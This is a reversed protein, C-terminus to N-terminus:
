CFSHNCYSTLWMNVTLGSSIFVMNFVLVPQSRAQIKKIPKVILQRASLALALSLTLSFPPPNLSVVPCSAEFEM